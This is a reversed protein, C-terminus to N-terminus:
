PPLIGAYRQRQCRSVFGRMAGAGKRYPVKGAFHAARRRVPDRSTGSGPRKGAAAEGPLESTCGECSVSPAFNVYDLNHEGAAQLVAAAPSQRQM